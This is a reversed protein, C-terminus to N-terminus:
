SIMSFQSCTRLVKQVLLAFIEQINEIVTIGRRNIWSLASLLVEYPPRYFDGPVYAYKGASFTYRM